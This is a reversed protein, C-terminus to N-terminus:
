STKKTYQFFSPGLKWTFKLLELLEWSSSLLVLPSILSVSILLLIYVYLPICKVTFLDKKIKTILSHFFLFSHLFSCYILFRPANRWGMRMWSSWLSPFLSRCLEKLQEHRVVTSYVRTSWWSLILRRRSLM